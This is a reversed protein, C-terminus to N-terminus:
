PADVPRQAQHDLIRRLTTALTDREKASLPGLLDDQIGDLVGGIHELRRKGSETLTVLNQRRDAPDQRREVFGGATLDNLAAVMDSRDIHCRRGLEAQSTPGFEDLAALVAYHYRTAGLEGLATSVLRHTLTATQTILWSPTQRLRAPQQGSAGEIDEM